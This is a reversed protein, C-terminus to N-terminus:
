KKIKRYNSEFVRIVWERDARSLKSQKLQILGYEKIVDDTPPNKPPKENQSYPSMYSFAAMMMMIKSMSKSNLRPKALDKEEWEEGNIIIKDM